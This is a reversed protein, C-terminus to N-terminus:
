WNFRLPIGFRHHIENVVAAPIRLCQGLQALYQAEPNTDLNIAMVSVAYVDYELGQPVTHAFGHPDLPAAFENQLFQIEAPSLPQLQGVIQQQEAPDIMGDAKAANIMARVLITARQDFYQQDVPNPCPIAGGVPYPQQPYPQQPFPQQPYSQQPYGPQVAVRPQPMGPPCQHYRAQAQRLFEDFQNHGPHVHTGHPPLQRM